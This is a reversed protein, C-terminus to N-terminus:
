ILTSIITAGLVTNFAETLDKDEAIVIRTPSIPNIGTTTDVYANDWIEFSWVHYSEASVAQYTYNPRVVPYASVIRDRNQFRAYSELARIQQYTGSGIVPNVSKTVTATTFDRVGLEFSVVFPEDTDPNFLADTTSVGTFKIGWDGETITSVHDHDANTVGQFPQDLTYIRAAGAGSDHSVVIYCPDTVADGDNEPEEVRIISGVLISATDDDASTFTKSGHVLAFNNLDVLQAGSNIREVKIVSGNRALAKTAEIALGAAVESQTATADSKYPVTLVLPSNNLMGFTHNLVIQLGYYTSNAADMSGSVGNYGLYTVQEVRAENEVGLANKVHAGLFRPSKHLIGATDKWYFQYNTTATLASEEVTMNDINVFVGSGAPHTADTYAANDALGNTVTCVYLLTQSDEFISM